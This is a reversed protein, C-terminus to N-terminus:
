DGRPRWPSSRHRPRAARQERQVARASGEAEEGGPATEHDLPAPLDGHFTAAPPLEDDCDPGHWASGTAGQSNAIPARVSSRSATPLLEGDPPPRSRLELPAEARRGRGPQPAQTTLWTARAASGPAPQRKYVDSAASSRSQTSRPPRRIM